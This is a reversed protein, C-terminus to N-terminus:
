MVEALRERRDIEKEVHSLWQRAQRASREYEAAARFAERAAELGGANFLATGRFLHAQDPRDLGGRDLAQRASQAAEPWRKLNSYAYALQLYLEGDGSMEAAATLPELAARDEKAMRYAQALLRLNRVSREVTGEELGGQIVKAARYPIDQQMLLQALNVLERERTLLGQAYAMGLVRAQKDPRDMEGYISALQMWYDKRPFQEVMLELIEAVRQHNGLEYHVARLLQWWHEKVPEGRERVLKVARTAPELAREYRGLSYYANGLLIFADASPNEADRLWRELTDAAKEYEEVSFYLQALSYRTSTELGEPLNEEGLLREYSEIARQHDERAIHVYAYINWMQAREYSNLGGEDRLKDLTELAGPYNEEEAASQADSLERYVAERIAPTTRTQRQSEAQDQQQAVVTAPTAACVVVAALLGAKLTSIRMM